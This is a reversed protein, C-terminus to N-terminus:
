LLTIARPWKSHKHLQQAGHLRGRVLLFAKHFFHSNNCLDFYLQPKEPSSNKRSFFASACPQRSREPYTPIDPGQQSLQVVSIHHQRVTSSRTESTQRIRLCIHDGKQLFSCLGLHNHSFPFSLLACVAILKM